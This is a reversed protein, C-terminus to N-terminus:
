EKQWATVPHLEEWGHEGDHRVVGQIRIKDGARPAPLPLEPIIECVAFAKGDEVRIHVDGDEERKVLSVTGVIMARPRKWAALKDIPVLPYLHVPGIVKPRRVPQAQTGDVLYTWFVLNAFLLLGIPAATWRYKTTMDTLWPRIKMM